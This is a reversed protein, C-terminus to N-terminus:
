QKGDKGTLIVHRNKDVGQSGHELGLENALEHVKLREYKGLAKPLHVSQGHQGGAFEEMLGSFASIGGHSFIVTTQRTSPFFLSMLFLSAANRSFNILEDWFSAFVQNVTHLSKATDEVAFSLKTPKVYSPQVVTGSSLLLRIYSGLRAEIFIGLHWMHVFDLSSFTLEVECRRTVPERATALQYLLETTIVPQMLKQTTM